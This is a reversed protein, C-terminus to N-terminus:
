YPLQIVTQETKKPTQHNIEIYYGKGRSNKLVLNSAAIKKRLHCIHTDINRVSLNIKDWVIQVLRDRAIAHGFNKILTLLVKYEIPTLELCVPEELDAKISITQTELDIALNGLSVASSSNSSGTSKRRLLAEIRALLERPEFPKVIYDDAGVSLGQIKDELERHATLLIILAQSNQPISKLESCLNLGDGDPLSRDLLILDWQESELYKFASQLDSAIKFEYNPALTRRILFQADSNDEIILVRTM